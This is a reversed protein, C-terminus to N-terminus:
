LAGPFAELLEYSAGQLHKPLEQLDMFGGLGRDEICEDNESIGLPRGSIGLDRDISGTSTKSGGSPPGRLQQAPRPGPAAPGGSM